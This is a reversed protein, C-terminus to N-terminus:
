IRGPRQNDFLGLHKQSDEPMEPVRLLRGMFSTWPKEALPQVTVFKWFQRETMVIETVSNDLVWVSLTSLRVQERDTFMAAPLSKKMRIDGQRLNIRILDDDPFFYHVEFFQIIGKM